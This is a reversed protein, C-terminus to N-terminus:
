SCLAIEYSIGNAVEATFSRGRAEWMKFFRDPAQPLKELPKEAEIAVEIRESLTSFDNAQACIDVELCQAIWFDGEQFAVIRVQQM